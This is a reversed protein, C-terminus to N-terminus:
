SGLVAAIFMLGFFCAVIAFWIGTVWVWITANREQRDWWASSGVSNPDDKWMKPKESASVAGGAVDDGATRRDDCGPVGWRASPRLHRRVDRQLAGEREARRRQAM